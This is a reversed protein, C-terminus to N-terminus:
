SKVMYSASSLVKQKIEIAALLSLFSKEFATLGDKLLRGCVLNLDIGLNKLDFVVKLAESADATLAEKVRGHDLFASFTEEPLTNVSNKAILEVVYKIDSYAPNKTSTSAWLVRQINAGKEKLSKFEPSALIALYEKYIVKSNSVAAKGKLRELEQKKGSDFISDAIESLQADVLTDIRSVFVSAVSHVKRIDGGSDFFRKLGKAYARFSGLYQESSFILTVNVNLGRSVLEEVAIFGEDTAPIKLMLNPRSVKNYLRLGELVTRKADNALKPNVELSVYGDLGKTQKYVKLFLDSADQIDKITLEDYIEFTSKGNKALKSINQDYISSLGIAKEFITPNSTLGRLGKAIMERLRGSELLSRNINDLWASQGFSSLGNISTEPM